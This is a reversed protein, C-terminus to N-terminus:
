DDGDKELESTERAPFRVDGAALAAVSQSELARVAERVYHALRLSSAENPRQDPPLAGMLVAVVADDGSSVARELIELLSAGAAAVGRVKKPISLDGVGIERLVTEMDATFRDALDQALDSARAGEAKLRHHVVFLHLSLVLFRGELTDPVGFRQYFVPLRAQAVIAGYLRSADSPNRRRAGFPTFPNL